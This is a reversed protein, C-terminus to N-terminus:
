EEKDFNIDTAHPVLIPYRVPPTYCGTLIDTLAFPQYVINKVKDSITSSLKETEETNMEDTTM